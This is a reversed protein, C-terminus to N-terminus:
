IFKEPFTYKVAEILETETITKGEVNFHQNDVSVYHNGPEVIGIRAHVNKECDMYDNILEVNVKGTKIIEVALEQAIQNQIYETFNPDSIDKDPGYGGNLPIQIHVQCVGKTTTCTNFGDKLQNYTNFPDFIIHPSPTLISM